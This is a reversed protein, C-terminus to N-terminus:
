LCCLGLLFAANHPREDLIVSNTFTFYLYESLLVFDKKKLIYGSVGIYYPNNTVSQWFSYDM